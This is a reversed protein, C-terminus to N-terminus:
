FTPSLANFRPLYANFRTLYLTLPYLYYMSYVGVRVTVLSSIEHAKDPGLVNVLCVRRGHYLLCYKVEALLVEGGYYLKGVM